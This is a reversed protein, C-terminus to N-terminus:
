VWKFPKTYFQCKREINSVYFVNVEGGLEM